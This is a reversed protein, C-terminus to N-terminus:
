NYYNLSGAHQQRNPQIITFNFAFPTCFTRHFRIHTAILERALLLHLKAAMWLSFRNKKEKATIYYFYITNWQQKQIQNLHCYLLLSFHFSFFRIPMTFTSMHSGCEFHIFLRDIFEYVFVRINSVIVGGAFLM